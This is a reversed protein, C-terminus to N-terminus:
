VSSDSRRGIPHSLTVRSARPPAEFPQHQGLWRRAGEVAIEAVPIDKGGASATARGGLYIEIPTEVQGGGFAPASRGASLLAKDVNHHLITGFEDRYARCLDRSLQEALADCITDPHGAGKREVVEM